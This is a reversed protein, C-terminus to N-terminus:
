ERIVGDWHRGRREIIALVEDGSGPGTPPYGRLKRYEGAIEAERAAAAEAQLQTLLESALYPQRADIASWFRELTTMVRKPSDDDTGYLDHEIEDSRDAATM